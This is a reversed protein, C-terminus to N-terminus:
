VRRGLRAGQDCRFFALNLAMCRQVSLPPGGNAPATREIIDPGYRCMQGLLFLLRQSLARTQPCM